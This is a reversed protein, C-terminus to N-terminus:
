IDSLQTDSKYFQSINRLLPWTVTFRDDTLMQFVCPVWADNEFGDEAVHGEAMFRCRNFIHTDNINLISVQVRDASRRQGAHLRGTTCHLITPM